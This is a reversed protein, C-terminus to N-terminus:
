IVISKIGLAAYISILEQRSLTELKADKLLQSNQLQQLHTLLADKSTCTVKRPCQIKRRDGSEADVADYTANHIGTVIPPTVSPNSLEVSIWQPTLLSDTPSPTMSPDDVTVSVQHTLLSNTPSPSLIDPTAVPSTMSSSDDTPSPSAGLDLNPSNHPTAPSAINLRGEVAVRIPRHYKCWEAHNDNGASCAPIRPYVNLNSLGRNIILTLYPKDAKLSTFWYKVRPDTSKVDNPPVANGTTDDIPIPFPLVTRPQENGNDDTFTIQRWLDVDKAEILTPLRNTQVRRLFGDVFLDPAAQRLNHIGDVYSLTLEINSALNNIKSDTM